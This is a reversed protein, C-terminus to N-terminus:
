LIIVGPQHKVRISILCKLGFLETERWGNVLDTKPHWKMIERIAVNSMLIVTPERGFQKRLQEKEAEVWKEADERRVLCDDPTLGPALPPTPSESTHM